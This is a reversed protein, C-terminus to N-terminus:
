LLSVQQGTKPSAQGLLIKEYVVKTAGLGASTEIDLWQSASKSFSNWQQALLSQFQKGGWENIRKQSQSPAFFMIPKPCPLDASLARNDEWHSLGVMCCYNLKDDLRSHLTEILQTNGAFDVIM